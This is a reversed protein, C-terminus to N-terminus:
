VASHCCCRAPGSRSSPANPNQSLKARKYKVRNADISFSQCPSESHSEANSLCQQINTTAMAMALNCTAQVGLCWCPRNHFLFFFCYCCCSRWIHHLLLFQTCLGPLQCQPCCACMCITSQAKHLCAHRKTRELKSQEITKHATLNLSSEKERERERQARLYTTQLLEVKGHKQKWDELGPVIHSPNIAQLQCKWIERHTQTKSKTIRSLWVSFHSRVSANPFHVNHCIRPVPISVPSVAGDTNNNKSWLRKM